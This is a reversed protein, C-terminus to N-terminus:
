KEAPAREYLEMAQLPLDNRRTFQNDLLTLRVMALHDRSSFQYDFESLEGTLLVFYQCKQWPFQNLDAEFFTYGDPSATTTGLFYYISNHRPPLIYM